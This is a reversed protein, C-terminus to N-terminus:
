KAVVNQKGLLQELQDVEQASLSARENMVIKRGTEEDVLITAVEGKGKALIRRITQITEKTPLSSPLKLFLRRNSTPAEDVHQISHVILKPSKSDESKGDVIVLAGSVLLAGYKRYTEPFLVLSANGSSDQCEAFAMPEGRKTKIRKIEKILVVVRNPQRHRLENVFVPQGSVKKRIFDTPHGSVYLGTYSFEFDLQEELALDPQYQYTPELVDFLEINDGSMNISTVITELSAVLTARNTGLSDFAGTYILPNIWESKRWKKDIKRIFDIFSRFQGNTKRIYLVHQIFDRRVGKVAMFGLLIAQNHLTFKAHSKNIDVGLLPIDKRKIEQLYEQMKVSHHTTSNLLAVFFSEPYHAKLFAMQYAIMSYAVAHSRNFGYDAFRAIFAYMERGVSESYGNQVSGYVFRKEEKQITEKEKKSIARRLIDAQGLSYGALKSAVQMVQEQYVMVGYTKELIPKLDPHLYEIPLEGNKRKAFVDIQEMPGPRYLANVSAVDELSHPNVRRLVQKIGDSEFQFIGVTDSKQFVELTDADDIPIEKILFNPHGSQQVLKTAESLITLNKLGLFDMKLLGLEEVAGMTYQTLDLQGNGSQLPVIEQLTRDSIVVGAAHTGVHRPLGEIFSATQFLQKTQNTQDVLQQLATSKKYAQKLTIGLENPIAKSWESLAEQSLGMVRGTDRISMKAALTGFTAIQAAHQVGYTDKVYTLMEERRDDPFDLDIDPMNRREANLFREFLLDYKIPDVDTIFLAYSVLSGAASGRGAGTLIHKKRAYRMLDWVILFYDSFGMDHIVRLEEELRKVYVTSLTPVRKELGSLCRERLYAQPSYVSPLKYKPLLSQHFTIEVNIQAAIDQTHLVASEGFSNKYAEEHAYADHLSYEKQPAELESVVAGAGIAELVQLSFSERAEIMRVSDLAVVPLASHSLFSQIDAFVPSERLLLSAGLYFSGPHLAAKWHELFVAQKREEKAEIFSLLESDKIPLIVILDKSEKGIRELTIPTEVNTMKETSLALLRQYGTNNKAYLLVPFENEAEETMKMDLFLGILPKIKADICKKYFEVAGSMVNRDALGLTGYGQTKAESILRDVTITSTLLTYASMIHLPIMKLM